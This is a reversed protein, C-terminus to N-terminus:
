AEADDDAVLAAGPPPTASAAGGETQRPEPDLDGAYGNSLGRLRIRGDPLLLAEACGPMLKGPDEFAKRSETVQLRLLHTGDDVVLQTPWCRGFGQYVQFGVGVLYATLRAEQLLPKARHLDEREVLGEYARRGEVRDRCRRDCFELPRGQTGNSPLFRGCACCHTEM